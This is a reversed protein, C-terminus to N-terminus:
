ESILVLCSPDLAALIIDCFPLATAAFGREDKKRAEPM